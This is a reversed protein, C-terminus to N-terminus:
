AWCLTTQYRKMYHASLPPKGKTQRIDKVGKTIEVTATFKDIDSLHIIGSRYSANRCITPSTIPRIEVRTPFGDEHTGRWLTKHKGAGTISAVYSIDVVKNVAM